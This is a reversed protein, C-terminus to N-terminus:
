KMEEEISEIFYNITKKFIRGSVEVMKFVFSIVKFPFLCLQVLLSILVKTVLKLEQM